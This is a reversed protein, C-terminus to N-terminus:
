GAAVLLSSTVRSGSNGSHAKTNENELGKKAETSQKATWYRSKINRSSPRVVLSGSLILKKRM